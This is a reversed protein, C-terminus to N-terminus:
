SPNFVRKFYDCAAEPSLGRLRALMDAGESATGPASAMSGHGNGAEGGPRAGEGSNDSTSPLLESLLSDIEPESIEGIRGLITAELQSKRAPAIRTDRVKQSALYNSIARITPYEWLLTVSVEFGLYGGLTKSLSTGVLSDVGFENFPKDEEVDAAAMKLASAVQDVLFSRIDSASWTASYPHDRAAEGSRPESRLEHPAAVDSALKIGISNSNSGINKRQDVWFSKRVFPYTPLSIRRPSRGKHLLAWDVNFGAAWLAAIKSWEGRSVLDRVLETGSLVGELASLAPSSADLGRSVFTESNSRGALYAQLRELIQLRDRAIFVLRHEMAERGTQWSFAMDELHTDSELQGELWSKFRMAYDRLCDASRASLPFMQPELERDKDSEFGGEWEELVMHANAGGVGFSSLGARRPAHAHAGAVELKPREWAQLSKVLYFPSDAFDIHPNICDANLTPAIQRHKFQLLVKALGAIGAAAQLHGLNTKVSGLACFGSRGSMSGFARALGRIEIPDGLSTGTGHAEICSITAPDVGARSLANAIANGQSVPNPVTYGSTKGGANIASGKIIGYIRDGASIADALPRLLVSGVGEAPVFGDAGEGFARCREDRSLMKMSAMALFQRPHVM